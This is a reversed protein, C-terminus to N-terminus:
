KAHKVFKKRGIIFATVGCTTKSFMKVLLSQKIKPCFDFNNKFNSRTNSVRLGQSYVYIINNAFFFHENEM